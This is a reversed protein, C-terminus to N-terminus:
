KSTARILLKHTSDKAVTANTGNEKKPNNKSKDRGNAEV